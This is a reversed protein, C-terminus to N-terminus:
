VFNQTYNMHKAWFNSISARISQSKSYNCFKKVLILTLFVLQTIIYLERCYIATFTLISRAAWIPFWLVEAALHKRPSFLIIFYFKSLFLHAPIIGSPRILYAYLWRVSYTTNMRQRFYPCWWGARQWKKNAKARDALPCSSPKTEPCLASIIMSCGSKGARRQWITRFVTILDMGPPLNDDDVHISRTRSCNCRQCRDVLHKTLFM